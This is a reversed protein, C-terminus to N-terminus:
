GQHLNICVNLTYGFLWYHTTSIFKIALPFKELFYPMFSHVYM